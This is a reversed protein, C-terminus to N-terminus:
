PRNSLQFVNGEPDKGDCTKVGPGDGPDKGMEIGKAIMEARVKSVEECYFAIKTQNAVNGKAKHLALHAVGTDFDILSNTTLVRKLGLKQEYFEAVKEIDNCFLIVRKLQFQM